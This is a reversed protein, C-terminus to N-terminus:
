NNISLAKLNGVAISVISNRIPKRKPKKEGYRNVWDIINTAPLSCVINEVISKFLIFDLWSKNSISATITAEINEKINILLTSGKAHPKITPTKTLINNDNKPM